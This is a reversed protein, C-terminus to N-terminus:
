RFGQILRHRDNLLIHKNEIGGDAVVNGHEAAERRLFQRLGYATRLQFGQECLAALVIEAPFVAAAEGAALLLADRNRSTKELVRRNQQSVLCGGRQVCLRCMLDCVIDQGQGANRADDDRM